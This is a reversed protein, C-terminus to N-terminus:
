PNHVREMGRLQKLYNKGTDFELNRSHDPNFYYTFSLIPNGRHKYQLNFPGRIKGYNALTISGNESTESRVRFIFNQYDRYGKTEVTGRTRPKGARSIRQYEFRSQYGDTPAQKPIKLRSKDEPDPIFEILGDRPNSFTIEVSSEQGKNQQGKYNVMFIFDSVKGRGYPSVYDGVILDYGVPKGLVPIEGYQHKAYMPVPNEKKKIMLELTPNWPEWRGDELNYDSSFLVNLKKGSTYYGRKELAYNIRGTTEAIATFLGDSDSYGVCIKEGERGQETVTQSFVVTIKTDPVPNGSEDLSKITLKAMGNPEQADADITFILALSVTLFAMISHKVARKM